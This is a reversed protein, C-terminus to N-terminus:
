RTADAYSNSNPLCELEIDDHYMAYMGDGRGEILGEYHLFGKSDMMFQVRKILAFQGTKKLRVVTGAKYADEDKPHM